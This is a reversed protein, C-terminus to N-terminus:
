ADPKDETVPPDNGTVPEAEGSGPASDSEGRSNDGSQNGRLDVTPANDSDPEKDDSIVEPEPLPAPEAPKVIRSGHDPKSRGPVPKGGSDSGGRKGGNKSVEGNDKDETPWFLGAIAVALGVPILLPHM